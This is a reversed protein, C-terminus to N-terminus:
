GELFYRAGMKGIETVDKPAEFFMFKRMSNQWAAYKVRTGLTMRSKSYQSEETARKRMNMTDQMLSAQSAPVRKRVKKGTRKSTKTGGRAVKPTKFPGWTEGRFTGGHKNKVFMLDIRAHMYLRAERHFGLFGRNFRTARDHQKKDHDSTDLEFGIM